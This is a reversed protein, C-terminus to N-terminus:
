YRKGCMNDHGEAIKGNADYYYNFWCNACIITGCFNNCSISNAKFDKKCSPCIIKRNDWPYKKECHTSHGEIYQKFLIRFEGKCNCCIKTDCADCVVDAIQETSCHPCIIEEGKRFKIQYETM